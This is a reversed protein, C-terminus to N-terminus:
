VGVLEEVIGTGNVIDSTKMGGPGASRSRVDALATRQKKKQRAQNLFSDMQCPCLSSPVRDQLTVLKTAVWLTYAVTVSAGDVGGRSRSGMIETEPNSLVRAM